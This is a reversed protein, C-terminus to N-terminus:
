SVNWSKWTDWIYNIALVIYIIIQTPHRMARFKWSGSHRVEWLVIRSRWFTGTQSSWKSKVVFHVRQFWPFRVWLVTDWLLPTEVVSSRMIRALHLIITCFSVDGDMCYNRGKTSSDLSWTPFSIYQTHGNEHKRLLSNCHKTPLCLLNKRSM